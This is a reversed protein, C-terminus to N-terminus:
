LKERGLVAAKKVEWELASHLIERLGREAKWGLVREAKAASAYLAPPDGARRAVYEHPLKRGSLEETLAIVEKISSGKGTGLNLAVSEGGANLYELAKVHAGALDSVHIYDRICTGDPTDFDNGFVKLEPGTGLVARIALPILHTEPEHMEGTEGSEHAGAANFYRLAAYRLGHALSYSKLVQEFFLKSAGYPNIPERPMDETMPLAQPVGYVACTSSFVFTRVASSLVADLLALGKEVNNEFYKRPNVVSEGVYASAAFHMVADVRALLGDVLKRDAIDGVILEFGRALERHGTSLNDLIVVDHGAAALHRVACSGIYGSGGTVLVRM